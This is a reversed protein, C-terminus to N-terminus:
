RLESWDMQTRSCFAQFAAASRPSKLLAALLRGLALLMVRAHPQLRRHACINRWSNLVLPAVAAEPATHERVVKVHVPKRPTKWKRAKVADLLAQGPQTGLEYEAWQPGVRRESVLAGYAAVTACGNCTALRLLPQPLAADAEPLTVHM